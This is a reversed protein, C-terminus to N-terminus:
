PRDWRGGAALGGGLPKQRRRGGMIVLGRAPAPWDPWQDVWAVAAANCPAVLFDDRGDAERFPLALLLQESEAM